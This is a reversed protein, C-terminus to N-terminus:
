GLKSYFSCRYVNGPRQHSWLDKTPGYVFKVPMSFTTFNGGASVSRWNKTFVGPYFSLAWWVQMAFKSKGVPLCTDSVMPGCTTPPGEKEQPAAAPKEMM